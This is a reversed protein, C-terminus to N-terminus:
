ILGGFHDSHQAMVTMEYYFSVASISPMIIARSNTHYM